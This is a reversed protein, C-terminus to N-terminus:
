VHTIHGPSTVLITKIGAKKARNVMDKTGRSNEIDNHFAICMNIPEGHVHEESLMQQNRILGAASKYRGWDAPYSRVVFRLAEAVAVCVNDAGRCAGHVIVTDHPFGQLVKVITEVDDWERDGTVLVKM